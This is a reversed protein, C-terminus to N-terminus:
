RHKPIINDITNSGIIRKIIDCNLYIDCTRM